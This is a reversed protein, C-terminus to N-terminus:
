ANDTLHYKDLKAKLTPRALGLFKAAHTQNGQHLRMAQTLLLKEATELFEPHASTGRYDRLYNQILRQLEGLHAGTREDGVFPETLLRLTEAIHRTGIPYGQTLIMAQQLCNQLERVNGPWSHGCLADVAEETLASPPVHMQRAFREVFYAALRPVDDRRDRLPPVHISFVRLRHYLDDRFQGRQITAELDKNTAAIIRVDVGIRESGGVREFTKDQLVRLLKAQTSLPMDGIEDLFITGGHAQEFKGIKTREAGTFSGKEHGFFESELLTEPIAVCNVVVLPAAARASHQYIARAILEKGTGTEGRILVTADTPAVRGIAKYVACMGPSRGILPDGEESVPEGDMEVPRDMLRIAELAAAVSDLLEPPNLPKLHYDVAGLKIARVATEMTGQGTIIIVPLRRDIRKIAELTELGTLGPMYIDMIVLDPRRDCLVALAEQGHQATCVEYGQGTLLQEFASLIHADDDVVLIRSM